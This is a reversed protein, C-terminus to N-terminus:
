LIKVAGKARKGNEKVEREVAQMLALVETDNLNYIKKLGIFVDVPPVHNANEYRSYTSQKVGLTEHVFKATIGRAVRLNKLIM